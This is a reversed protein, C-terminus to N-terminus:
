VVLLELRVRSSVQPRGGWGLRVRVFVGGALRVQSGLQHFPKNSCHEGCPCTKQDCHIKMVRNLCNEGCGARGQTGDPLTFTKASCPHTPHPPSPQLNIQPPHSPQDGPPRPANAALQVFKFGFRVERCWILRGVLRGVPGCRCNCISIDDHGMRKPRDKCLYVNRKVMEFKPGDPDGMWVTPGEAVLHPPVGPGAITRPREARKRAAPAQAAAAVAAALPAAAAAPKPPTPAAAAAAGAPSGLASLPDDSGFAAELAFFADAVAGERGSAENLMTSCCRPFTASVAALAGVVPRQRMRHERLVAARLQQQAPPAFGELQSIAGAGPTAAVAGAVGAMDAFLVAEFPTLPAVAVAPVKDAGGPVAVAVAGAVAVPGAVAATDGGGGGGGGPAKVARAWTKSPSLKPPQAIADAAAAAVIEDEEGVAAEEDEEESGLDESESFIEYTVNGDGDYARAWGGLEASQAAVYARLEEEEQEAATKRRRQKKPEGGAAGAARPKSAKKAGNAGGDAADSGRQQKSRKRRRARDGDSEFDSDGGSAGAAPARPRKQQQPAVAAAPKKGKKPQQQQQQQEPAGAAEPQQEDDSVDEDDVIPPAGPPAPLCWWGEPAFREATLSLYDRVQQARPGIPPLTLRTSHSPNLSRSL